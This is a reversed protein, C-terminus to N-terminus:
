DFIMPRKINFNGEPKTPAVRHFRDREESASYGELGSGDNRSRDEPVHECELWNKRVQNNPPVFQLKWPIFTGFAQTKAPTEEAKVDKMVHKRTMALKSAGPSNRTLAVEASVVPMEEILVQKPSYSTTCEFILDWKLNCRLIIQFKDQRTELLIFILFSLHM